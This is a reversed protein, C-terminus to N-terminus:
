PLNANEAADPPMKVDKVGIEDARRALSAYLACILQNEDWMEAAADSTETEYEVSLAGSQLPLVAGDAPRTEDFCVTLDAGCTEGHKLPHVSAGCDWRLTRALREGNPACVM